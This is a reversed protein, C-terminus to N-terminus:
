KLKLIKNLSDVGYDRILAEKLTVIREKCHNGYYRIASETELWYYNRLNKIFIHRVRFRRSYSTEVRVYKCDCESFNSKFKIYVFNNIEHCGFLLFVFVRYNTWFLFDSLKKEIKVYNFIDSIGSFDVILNDLFTHKHICISLEHVISQESYNCRYYDNYAMPQELFRRRFFNIEDNSKFCLPVDIYIGKIKFNTFLFKIVEILEEKSRDQTVIVKIYEIININSYKKLEEITITSLDILKYNWKCDLYIEYFRSNIYKASKGAYHIINQLVESPLNNINNYDM